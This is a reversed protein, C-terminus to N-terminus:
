LNRTTEGQVTEPPRAADPAESIALIEKSPMGCSVLKVDLSGEAGDYSAVSPDFLEHRHQRLANLADEENAELLRSHGVLNAALIAALRREREACGFTASM